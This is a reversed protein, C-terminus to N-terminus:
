SQVRLTIQALHLPQLWLWKKKWFTNIGTGLSAQISKRKVLFFFFFAVLGELACNVM